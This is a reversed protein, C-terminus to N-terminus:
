WNMGYHYMANKKLVEPNENLIEIIEKVSGFIKKRKLEQIVFSIVEFDEPYDITIRYKGWNYENDLQITSFEKGRRWFYFTVHERDKQDTAEKWIKELNKFSFVEVDSGDPFKSTEPPATNAAYDVKSELYLQITSDIIVPDILPCDATLRVVNEANYEKAVRYFRDLVDNESGRYYELDNKICFQVIPEDKSNTTTAVVIKDVLISKSVRDIMFKLLPKGDLNMLVKGPLRSSGMRAQIILLNM